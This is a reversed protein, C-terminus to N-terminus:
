RGAKVTHRHDQGVILFARTPAVHGCRPCRRLSYGRQRWHGDDYRLPQLQGGPFVAGCSPCRRYRWATM